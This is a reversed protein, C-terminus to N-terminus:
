YMVKMNICLAKEKREDYYFCKLPCMAVSDNSKCLTTVNYVCCLFQQLSRYKKLRSETEHLYSATKLFAVDTEKGMCWLRDAMKVDKQM